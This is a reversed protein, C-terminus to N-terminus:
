ECQSKSCSCQSLTDKLKSEDQSFEVGIYIPPMYNYPSVMLQQFHYLMLRDMCSGWPIPQSSLDSGRWSLNDGLVRPVFYGAHGARM